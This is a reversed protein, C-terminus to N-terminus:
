GELGAGETGFGLEAETEGTDEVVPPFSGPWTTEIILPNLELVFFFGVIPCSVIMTGEVFM